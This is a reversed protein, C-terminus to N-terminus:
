DIILESLWAGYLIYPDQIIINDENKINEKKILLPNKKNPKYVISGFCDLNRVDFENTSLKKDLKIDKTKEVLNAFHEKFYEMDEPQQLNYYTIQIDKESLLASANIFKSNLKYDCDQIIIDISEGVKKGVAMVAIKSYENECILMDKSFIVKVNKVLEGRHYTLIKCKFRICFETEGNFHIKGTSIYLIDLVNLIFCGKYCRGEIKTLELKIANKYNNLNIPSLFINTEFLKESIM